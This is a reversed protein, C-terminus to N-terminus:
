GTGIRDNNSIGGSGISLPLGSLAYGSNTGNFSIGSASTFATLEHTTDKSTANEPFVLSDGNVPAGGNCATWNLPTSWLSGSAGTWICTSAFAHSSLTAAILAIFLKVPTPSVFAPM